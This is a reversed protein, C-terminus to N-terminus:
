RYVDLTTSGTIRLCSCTRRTSSPRWVDRIELFRPRSRLFLRSSPASFIRRWTWRGHEEANERQATEQQATALPQQSNNRTAAAAFLQVRASRHDRSLRPTEGGRPSFLLRLHSLPDLTDSARAITQRRNTYYDTSFFQVLFQLQSTRLTDVRRIDTATHTLSTRSVATPPSLIPSRLSCVASIRGRVNCDCM